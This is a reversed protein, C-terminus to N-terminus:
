LSPSRLLGLMAVHALYIYFSRETRRDGNEQDQWQLVSCCVRHWVNGKHVTVSNNWNRVDGMKTGGLCGEKLQIMLLM